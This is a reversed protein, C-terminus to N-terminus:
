FSALSPMTGESSQVSASNRRRTLMSIVPVSFTPSVICILPWVVSRSIVTVEIGAVVPHAFFDSVKGVEQEAM